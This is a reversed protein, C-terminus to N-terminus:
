AASPRVAMWGSPPDPGRPSSEGPTTKSIPTEQRPRPRCGGTVHAVGPHCTDHYSPGPAALSCRSHLTSVRASDNWPMGPNMGAGRCFAAADSAPSHRGCHARVADQPAQSSPLWQPDPHGARRPMAGIFREARYRTTPSALLTRMQPKLVSNGCGGQGATSHEPSNLIADSGVAAVAKQQLGGPDVRLHVAQGEIWRRREETDITAM